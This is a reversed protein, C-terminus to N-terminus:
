DLYFQLAGLNKWKTVVVVLGEYALENTNTNVESFQFLLLLPLQKLMTFVACCSDKLTYFMPKYFIENVEQSNMKIVLTM